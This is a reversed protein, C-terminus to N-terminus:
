PVRPMRLDTLKQKLKSPNKELKKGTETSRIFPRREEVLRAESEKMEFLKRIVLLWFSFKLCVCHNRFIKRPSIKVIFFSLTTRLSVM